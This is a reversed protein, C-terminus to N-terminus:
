PEIIKLLLSVAGTNRRIAELAEKYEQASAYAHESRDTQIESVYILFKIRIYVNIHWSKVTGAKYNLCFLLLLM